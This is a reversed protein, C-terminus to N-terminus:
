LIVQPAARDADNELQFYERRAFPFLKPLLLSPFSEYLIMYNRVTGNYYRRAMQLQDETEFLAAQLKLFATDAKLDPYAESVAVLKGALGTVRNESAALEPTPVDAPITGLAARAAAVESFLGKEHAAYGKVVDALNPILDRRRKLQVSIGSWAEGARRGLTVFRNYTYIAWAIVVLAAIGAYLMRKRWLIARARKQSGGTYPM